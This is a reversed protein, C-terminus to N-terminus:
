GKFIQVTLDRTVRIAEHSGSSHLSATSNETIAAVVSEGASDHIRNFNLPKRSHGSRDAGWSSPVPQLKWAKDKLNSNPAFVLSITPLSANIIGIEVELVTLIFGACLNYSIDDEDLM